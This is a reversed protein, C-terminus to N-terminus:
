EGCLDPLGGLEAALEAYAQITRGGFADEYQYLIRQDLPLIGAVDYAEADSDTNGFVWDPVLGRDALAQLEGVKYEVAASGLAGDFNLTTRVIGPPLGRQRVFEHTRAGLFEPRATLYVPHYGAEALLALVEPAGPNVEPTAGTLLAGFEETESTTLTGDIDSVFIPTGPPVVEIYMDARSDDGRAVLHVRHRGPGLIQAAPIQMYVRGGSDAVGEITPHTGDFTTATTGLSEWDGTCERLLFVDIREDKVDLDAPGYAFKALIWQPDSEGYFMDRGRHNPGGTASALSSETHAWGLAPGPNPLPAECSPIPTCWAGPVGGPDGTGDESASTSAGATTDGDGTGSGVGTSTDSEPAGDTRGTDVREDTDSSTGLAGTMTDGPASFTCAALAGFTALAELACARALWAM